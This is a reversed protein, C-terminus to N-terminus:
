IERILEELKIRIERMLSIKGTVRNTKIYKILKKINRKTEDKDDTIYKNMIYKKYEEVEERNKYEISNMMQTIKMTITQKYEIRKVKEKSYRTTRITQGTYATWKRNELEVNNGELKITYTYRARKKMEFSISFKMNNDNVSIHRMMLIRFFDPICVVKFVNLIDDESNEEIIRKLIQIQEETNKKRMLELIDEISEIDYIYMYKDDEIYSSINDRIDKPMKKWYYSSKNRSREQLFLERYQQMKKGTSLIEKAEDFNLYKTVEYLIEEPMKEFRGKKVMKKKNKPKHTTTIIGRQTEEM